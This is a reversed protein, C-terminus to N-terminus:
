RVTTKTKFSLSLKSLDSLIVKLFITFDMNLHRFFILEGFVRMSLFLKAFFSNCVGYGACSAWIIVVIVNM